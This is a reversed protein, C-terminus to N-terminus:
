MTPPRSRVVALKERQAPALIPALKELLAVEGEEAAHTPRSDTLDLTKADFGLGEFGNLFTDLRKLMDDPDSVGSGLSGESKALLAAVKKRQQADLTLDKTMRELTQKSKDAVSPGATSDRPAPPRREQFAAAKTRLAAVLAGRQDPDLTAYLTDLAHVEHAEADLLSKNIAERDAKLQAEDFKGKRVAATVDAERQAYASRVAQDLPVFGEELSTLTSVQEDSLQLEGTNNFALGAFGHRRLLSLRRSPASASPSPATILSATASAGAQPGSGPGKCAAPAALLILSLSPPLWRTMRRIMGPPARGPYAPRSRQEEGSVPTSPLLPPVDPNLSVVPTLAATLPFAEERALSVPPM